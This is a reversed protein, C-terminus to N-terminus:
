ATVLRHLSRHVVEISTRDLHEDASHAVRPDGPGFNTAPVGYQAFRAVDTWGLKARVELGNDEVLRALLPHLLSPACAPSRDEVVIEDGDELHPAVLDRLWAEAEEASRDPAYRHHIRLVAADPVVNGAVGGEVSVAQVAERYTCGDITPTRAEYAALAELIPGLRHVANRGMWPRATHARAGALHVQIRLTGQCGAEILGETPEGLIACDGALLDPREAWLENLGNHEQAVEERAYFVFSLDVTPDPVTRALELFVALGGKMDASGVGWLTDGDIRAGANGNAPVTDTHGALILRQSRGLDTRAVLNDGVRTLELHDLAALERELYAVMPGEAFSVSPVDVLAATLALLDTM